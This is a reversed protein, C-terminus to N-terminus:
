CVAGVQTILEAWKREGEHGSGYHTGKDVQAHIAARVDPDGHGLILAGHGMAYDIIREGAVDWKYAGDAHDVYIPFPRQYRGDHAIGGAISGRAQEYLAKSSAFRSEFDSILQGKPPAQVM